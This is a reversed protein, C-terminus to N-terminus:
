TLYERFTDADDKSHRHIMEIYLERYHDYVKKDKIHDTLYHSMKMCARIKADESLALHYRHAHEKVAKFVAGRDAQERVMEVLKRPKM